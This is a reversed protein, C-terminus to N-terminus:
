AFGIAVFNGGVEETTQMRGIAPSTSRGRKTGVTSHAAPLSKSESTPNGSPMPRANEIIKRQQETGATEAPDVMSPQRRGGSLEIDAAESLTEVDGIPDGIDRQFQSSQNAKYEDYSQSNLAAVGGESVEQFRLEVNTWCYSGDRGVAKAAVRIRRNFLPHMWPYFDEQFDGAITFPAKYDRGRQKGNTYWQVYEVEGATEALLSIEDDRHLKIIDQLDDDLIHNKKTDILHLRKISVSPHHTWIGGEFWKSRIPQPQKHNRFPAPVLKQTKRIPMCPEQWCIGLQDVTAICRDEYQSGGGASFRPQYSEQLPEGGQIRIYACDYYDGFHGYNLGGGYWTFSLIYDGDPYVPPIYLMKSFAENQLDYNCDRHFDFENCRFRGVNWCHYDFAMKHHASKDYMKNIPVIAWRTFGGEHNNRSWVM